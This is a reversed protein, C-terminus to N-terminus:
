PVVVELEEFVSFDAENSTIISRVGGAFYTAALMTDLIRKRGLGYREMWTLFWSVTHDNIYVQEVEISNWWQQSRNLAQRMTLPKEFRKPDTIIHIFEEIVQPAIAFTDPSDPIRQKYERAKEHNPHGLIEAEVLFTTDIGIKM